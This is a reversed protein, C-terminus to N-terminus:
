YNVPAKAQTEVEGLPRPDDDRATRVATRLAAVTARNWPVHILSGRLAGFHLAMLMVPIACFMGSVLLGTGHVGLLRIIWGGSLAGLAVAGVSLFRSLGIIRGFQGNPFAVAQHTRLAVNIYVGVVSCLGWMSLGVVPNQPLTSVAVLPIWAVVGVLVSVASPSTRRILWPSVVAGVVGGIGSCSLLLGVQYSPIGQREALYIQLLVIVQFLFNALVCVALVARTFSDRALLRLVDKLTPVHPPPESGAAVPPGEDAEAAPVVLGRDDTAMRRGCLRHLAAVWFARLRRRRRLEILMLGFIPFLSTCAAVIWPALANVTLLAGGLPRGLLMSANLKAENSGIAAKLSRPSVLNPVTAIEAVEYFVTCSADVLAMVILVAASDCWALSLCTVIAFVVRVAQSWWMVRRRDFRDVLLGAPVQLLLEPLVSAATVCGALVPSGTLSLALLPGAAAVSMSGLQSVASAGSIIAFNWRRKSM